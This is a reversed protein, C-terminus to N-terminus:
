SNWSPEGGRAIPTPKGGGGFPLTEVTGHSPPEMFADASILLRTGDQSIQGAQLDQDTGNRVQEVRRPSIQVTWAYSTDQGGFEALIRNGDASISIPALGAVLKQVKVHTLQISKSGARLWLQYIPFADAGRPTERVFVIGKAGWVPELSRNDHTIQTSDAGSPGVTYLNSPTTQSSSSLIGYVLRDGGSAAPNFSAGAITGGSVLTTARMTTTDIVALGDQRAKLNTSSLEVALYRSDPSWAVPDASVRAGNFFHHPAAGATSYLELAPGKSANSAAAVYGSSPSILPEDGPGLRRPSGGNANAVWVFPGATATGTDYAIRVSTSDGAASPVAIAALVLACIAAVRGRTV